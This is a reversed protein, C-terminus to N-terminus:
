KSKFMDKPGNLVLLKIIPKVFIMLKALMLKPDM